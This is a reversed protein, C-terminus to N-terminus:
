SVDNEAKHDFLAGGYILNFFDARDGADIHNLETRRVIGHAHPPILAFVCFFCFGLGLQALL